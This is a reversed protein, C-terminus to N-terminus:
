KVNQTFILSNDLSILKGYNVSQDVKLLTIDDLYLKKALDYASMTNFCSIHFTVGYTMWNVYKLADGKIEEECFDCIVKTTTITGM